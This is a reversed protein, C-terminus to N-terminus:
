GAREVPFIMLLMVQPGDGDTPAFHARVRYDGRQLGPVKLGNEGTMPDYLELHGTLSRYGVEVVQEWGKRELPPRKRYVQATLCVDFDPHVRLALVGPAAGILPAEPADWDGEEEVGPDWSEIAGYDTWKRASVVHTPRIRPRHRNLDCFVDAAADAVAYSAEEATFWATADRHALPCIPSLETDSLESHPHRACDARGYALLDRDPIGPYRGGSRAGCLFADDGVDLDDTHTPKLCDPETIAGRHGDTQALAVVLGTAALRAFARRVGPRSPLRMLSGPRRRAAALLLFGNLAGLAVPPVLVRVGDWGAWSYEFCMPDRVLDLALLVLRWGHGIVLWWGMIRVAARAARSGGAAALVVAALMVLALGGFVLIETLGAGALGLGFLRPGGLATRAIWEPEDLRGLHRAVAFHLDSGLCDGFGPFLVGFRLGERTSMSVLAGASIVSALTLCISSRRSM